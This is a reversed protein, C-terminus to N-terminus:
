NRVYVFFVKVVVMVFKCSVLHTIFVLNLKSRNSSFSLNLRFIPFRVEDRILTSMTGCGDTFNYKGDATEVDNIYKVCEAPIQITEETSTFCQAIRATHKAVVRESEFNGMWLYADDFSLNEHENFPNISSHHHYFWFQKEKLQSQSHHLYKYLRNPVITFGDVLLQKLKWRIQRFDLPYLVGGDEERIEM